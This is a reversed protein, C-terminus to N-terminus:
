MFQRGIHAIQTFHNNGGAKFSQGLHLFDGLRTVSAAVLTVLHQFLFYGFTAGGTKVTFYHKEYYGLFNGFIQALKTLINAAM